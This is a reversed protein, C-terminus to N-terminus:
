VEEEANYVEDTKWNEILCWLFRETAAKFPHEKQIEGAQNIYRVLCPAFAGALRKSSMNTEREHKALEQLFGILYMLTDQHENPLLNAMHICKYSELNTTLKLVFETPILPDQLKRFFYKLLSTVTHVSEVSIELNGRNLLEITKLKETKSSSKEKFVDRSKFVNLEKLKSVIKQVIKPVLTISKKQSDSLIREKLLVEGLSVGFLLKPTSCSFSFVLPSSQDFPIFPLSKCSLRLLCLMANIQIDHPINPTSGILTFYSRLVKIIDLQGYLKDFKFRSIIILFLTWANKIERTSIKWNTEIILFVVIEPLLAPHGDLRRIVEIINANESHVIFRRCTKTLMISLNAIDSSTNKLIPGVLTKKGPLFIEEEPLTKKKVFGKKAWSNLNMHSKLTRLLTPRDLLLFLDSPLFPTKMFSTPVPTTDNSLFTELIKSDNENLTFDSLLNPTSTMPYSSLTRTRALSIRSRSINEPIVHPAEPPEIYTGDPPEVIIYSKDYVWDSRQTDEYYYYPISTGITRFQQCCRAM